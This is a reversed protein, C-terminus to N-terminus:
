PLVDLRMVTTAEYHEGPLLEISPFNPHNPADPFAQTELCVGAHRQYLTGHSGIVTGDLFNGSYLQLGPQDTQVTLRRGSGPDHLTCAHRLGLEGAIPADLVLCHDYGGAHRLQEDDEGIRRGIAVPERFDFATGATAVLEGTPILEGDVACYRDAAISLEHGLVDGTGEGQLNFYSHNTMNVVTPADTVASYRMCLEGGPHLTYVVAASLTGPYGEDGAPSSMTLELTACAGSTARRVEWLKRSFGMDGGHLHHRGHNRVLQVERGQLQFRGGAIRNAVRGVIVGFYEDGRAYANTEAYGLVINSRSGFRDPVEIRVIACGLSLVDVAM